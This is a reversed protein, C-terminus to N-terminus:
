TGQVERWENWVGQAARADRYQRQGRFILIARQLGSARELLEEVDFESLGARVGRPDYITLVSTGGKGLSLDPEVFPDFAPALGISRCWPVWQEPEWLGHPEFAVTIGLKPVLESAFWAIRDRNAPTPTFTPPTKVLIAKPGLKRAQVGTYEWAARVAETDQFLGASAPDLDGLWAPRAEGLPMGVGNPAHMVFCFGKPSDTRWRSLAKGTVSDDATERVETATVYEFYAVKRGVIRDCGIFVHVMWYEM